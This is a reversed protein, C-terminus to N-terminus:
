TDRGSTSQRRRRHGPNALQKRGGPREVTSKWARKVDDPAKRVTKQEASVCGAAVWSREWRGRRWGCGPSASEAGARRRDGRGCRSGLLSIVHLQRRVPAVRTTMQRVIGCWGPGLPSARTRVSWLAPAAYTRCCGPDVRWTAAIDETSHQGGSWVCGVRRDRSACPKQRGVGGTAERERRERDGRGDRAEFCAGGHASRRGGKARFWTRARVRRTRGVNSRTSKVTSILRTAECGRKVIM